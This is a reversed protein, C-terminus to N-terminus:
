IGTPFIEETIETGEINLILKGRLAMMNWIEKCILNLVDRGFPKIFKSGYKQLIRLQIYINHPIGIYLPARIKPNYWSVGGSIPNFSSTFQRGPNDYPGLWTVPSGKLAKICTMSAYSLCRETAVKCIINVEDCSLDPYFLNSLNRDLHLKLRGFSVDPFDATTIKYGKVYCRERGAWRYLAGLDKSGSNNIKYLRDKIEEESMYNIVPSDFLEMETIGTWSIMSIKNNVAMITNSIATKQAYFEGADYDNPESWLRKESRQTLFVEGQLVQVKLNGGIVFTPVEISKFLSNELASLISNTSRCPIILGFGYMNVYKKLRKEFSPSRRSLDVIIYGTRLAFVSLPLGYFDNGDYLFMCASIDFGGIISAKTPYVRHIFQYKVGNDLIDKTTLNRNEPSIFDVWITTVNQNRSGYWRGKKEKSFWRVIDRLIREARVPDIGSFFFDIDGRHSNDRMEIMSRLVSGGACVLFGQGLELIDYLDPCSVILNLESIGTYSVFPEEVVLLENRDLLIETMSFDSPIQVLEFNKTRLDDGHSLLISGVTDRNLIM